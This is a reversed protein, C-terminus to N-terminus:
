ALARKSGEVLSRFPVIEAVQQMLAVDDRSLPRDYVAFKHLGLAGNAPGTDAFAVYKAAISSHHPAVADMLIQRDGEALLAFDFSHEKGSKGRVQFDRIIRDRQFVRALSDHIREVLSEEAAATLRMVAHNAATASANAVALIAAPLWEINPAKGILSADSLELHFKSAERKLCSLILPEDRGHLWAERAAEGGDHIRFGDGIKAIFVSVQTFSPYLCHTLFRAGFETGECSSLSEVAGRLDDCLM